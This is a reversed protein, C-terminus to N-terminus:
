SIPSRRPRSQSCSSSAARVTSGPLDVGLLQDSLGRPGWARAWAQALVFPPLLLPALVAARLAHRRSGAARETFIAAGTGALVAIASVLGSTWLTNVVATVAAPGGLAGVIAVPGGDTAVLALRALPLGILAAAVAATAAVLVATARRDTM